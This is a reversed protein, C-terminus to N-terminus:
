GVPLRRAEAEALVAAPRLPTFVVRTATETELDRGPRRVTVPVPERTEVVLALGPAGLTLDVADDGEVAPGVRTVAPRPVMVSEPRAVPDHVVVGSPVLVLWRRALGHLSRVGLVVAFLLVTEGRDFTIFRESITGLVLTAVMAAVVYAIFRVM